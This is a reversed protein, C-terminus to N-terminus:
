LKFFKRYIFYNLLQRLFYLNKSFNENLLSSPLVKIQEYQKMNCAMVALAPGQWLQVAHVRRQAAPTSWDHIKAYSFDKKYYLHLLAFNPIQGGAHPKSTKSTYWQQTSYSFIDTDPLVNWMGNIHLNNYLLLLLM